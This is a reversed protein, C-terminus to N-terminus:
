PSKSHQYALLVRQQYFLSPEFKKRERSVVRKAVVLLAHEHVLLFREASKFCAGLVVLLVYRYYLVSKTNVRLLM